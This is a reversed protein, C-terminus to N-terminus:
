DRDWRRIFDLVLALLMIPTSAGPTLMVQGMRIRMDTGAMKRSESAGVHDAIASALRDLRPNGKVYQAVAALEGGDMWIGRCEPCRDLLINSDYCYNYNAMVVACKPCKRQPNVHSRAPKEFIIRADLDPVNAASSLAPLLRAMEGDDFWFGNCADCRDLEVGAVPRRHLPAGCAPCHM